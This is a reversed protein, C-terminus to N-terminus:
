SSRSKRLLFGLSLVLAAAAAIWRRRKAATNSPTADAVAPKPEIRVTEIVPANDVASWDASLLLDMGPNQDKIECSCAGCLYTATQLLNDDHIGKGILPELARGRGFIPFVMPESIFDGLDPELHMLMAILAAERQDARSLRLISFDIKLPLDTQLVDANEHRRTANRLSAEDQTIVGDPLKVKETITKMSERLATHAANDKAADGSELLLWVATQGSLLRKRLEDRVPSNLLASATDKSFDAQWVPKRAEANRSRPDHLAVSSKEAPAKIEIEVNVPTKPHQLSEVIAKEDPTLGNTGPTMSLLYAAPEWRELAYRFVPVQCAESTVMLSLGCAIAAFVRSIAFLSGRSKGLSAM